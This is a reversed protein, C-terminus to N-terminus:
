SIAQRISGFWPHAMCQAATLRKQHDYLLVGDLLNLLDNDLFSARKSPIYKKWPLRPTDAELLPIFSKGPTLKYDSLYTKLDKTGLVDAIKYLQDINDKGRFFPIRGSAIGLLTCGFAFLDLSYDYMQMKVLLEPSKYHRSAVRVNYTHGPLYFDALGWDILRLRKNRPDIVLNQPKVDRHMVGNAHCFDLARLLQYMYYKADGPDFSLMLKKVNEFEIHEFILAMFSSDEKGARCTELLKVINPGGKLNSLIKIERKIKGPRVPKLVKIVVRKENQPDRTDIGEFVESYKGRGIKTVIEYGDCPAWKIKYNEYNSYTPPRERNVNTYVKAVSLLAKEKTDETERAAM